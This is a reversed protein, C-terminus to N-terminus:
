FPSCWDSPTGGVNDQRLSLRNEASHGPSIIILDTATSAAAVVVVIWGRAAPSATATVMM